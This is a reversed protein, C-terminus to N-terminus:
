PRTERILIQEYGLTTLRHKRREGSAEMFAYVCRGASIPFDFRKGDGSDLPECTSQKSVTVPVGFKIRQLLGEFSQCVSVGTYTQTSGNCEVEAKLTEGPTQVDIFGWSHRGKVAEYGGIMIPCYTGQAFNNVYEIRIENNRSGFIGGAGAKERSIQQHCDTLTFLDLGGSFELDLVYRSKSPLVAVGYYTKGGETIKIDRKFFAEASIPNPASECGVFLLLFVILYGM